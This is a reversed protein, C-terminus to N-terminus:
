SRWPGAWRPEPASTPLDDRRLHDTHSAVAGLLLRGPIGLSRPKEAPRVDVRTFRQAFGLGRGREACCASTEAGGLGSLQPLLLSGGVGGCLVDDGLTRLFSATPTAAADEGPAAPVWARPTHPTWAPEDQSVPHGIRVPTWRGRAARWSKTFKRRIIEQLLLLATCVCVFRRRAQEGRGDLPFAAPRGRGANSARVACASQTTATISVVAGRLRERPRRRGADHEPVEGGGRGPLRAPSMARSLQGIDEGVIVACDDGTWVACFDQTARLMARLRYFPGCPKPTAEPPTCPDPGPWDRIGLMVVLLAALLRRVSVGSRGLHLSQEPM